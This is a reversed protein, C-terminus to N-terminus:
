KEKGTVVSLIGICNLCGILGIKLTQYTSSNVSVEKHNKEMETLSYQTIAKTLKYLYLESWKALLM